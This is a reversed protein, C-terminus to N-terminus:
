HLMHQDGCCGIVYIADCMTEKATRFPLGMFEKTISSHCGRLVWAHM